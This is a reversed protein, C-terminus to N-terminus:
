PTKPYKTTISHAFPCARFSTHIPRRWAPVEPVRIFLANASLISPSARNVRALPCTGPLVFFCPNFPNNLQLRQGRGRPKEQHRQASRCRAGSVKKAEGFFTLLSVRGGPASSEKDRTQKDAPKILESVSLCDLGQKRWAGGRRRSRRLPNLAEDHDSACLSIGPFGRPIPTERCGM